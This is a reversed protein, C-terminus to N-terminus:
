RNLNYCHGISMNALDMKVKEVPEGPGSIPIDTLLPQAM